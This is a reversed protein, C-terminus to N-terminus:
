APRRRAASAFLRPPRTPNLVGSGFSSYGEDSDPLIHFGLIRNQHLDIIVVFDEKTEPLTYFCHLYREDGSLQRTLPVLTLSQNLSHEFAQKLRKLYKDLSAEPPIALDVTQMPSASATTIQEPSLSRFGESQGLLHVHKSRVIMTWWILCSGWVSAIGLLLCGLRQLLSSATASMSGAFGLASVIVTFFFLATGLSIRSILLFVKAIKIASGTTM